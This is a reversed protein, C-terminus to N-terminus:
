NQQGPLLLQGRLRELREEHQQQALEENVLGAMHATFEVFDNTENFFYMHDLKPEKLTVYDKDTVKIIEGDRWRDNFRGLSFWYGEEGEHKHAVVRHIMMIAYPKEDIKTSGWSRMVLDGEFIQEGYHDLKGTDRPGTIGAPLADFDIQGRGPKGAPPTPTTDDTM